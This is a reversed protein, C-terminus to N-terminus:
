CFVGASESRERQVAANPTMDDRLLYVDVPFASEDRATMFHKGWGCVRGRQDICLTDAGIVGHFRWMRQAGNVWADFSAFSFVKPGLAVTQASM